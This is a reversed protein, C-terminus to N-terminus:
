DMIRVNRVDRMYIVGIVFCVFAVLVPYALGILSSHDKAFTGEPQTAAWVGIWTAVLPVFGGFVGNGIHYPVSLSTYRVKTPFLEVLYAAIPGYVMTVFLVLIFTLAIMAPINPTLAKMVAPVAKGAADVTAPTIETLPGAFAKIGYFLPITFLAGCIMGTMIIRKRGIRDSLSGFYVFLPTALLMAVVLITSSDVLDIKLTNNMFSYAQFQSTYFIVGQGMTVGFLAILVLRRNVPNVFSDRLPNTSTTGAAKAKAFLPSEHLKRRIYYSAIVLLGSLLFPVRWGWEKFAEEGLIKRTIVIVSISLILGGTATIQIFSTFYGRKKDPAHEAVYTAAGGYEGGLALGQLLRLVVVILPAAIGIKDYGPVLGTVFTAGGMILLTVLFTYKRGIMDGIRGFFLAGFPRVVFGAGFVALAGLLSDELKGTAGFLVPGIIAALSGFIYFDYWEIVTGVSSATIVQWIKSSSVANNDHTVAEDAAPSGVPAAGAYAAADRQPLHQNM